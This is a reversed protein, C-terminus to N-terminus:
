AKAVEQEEKLYKTDQIRFFPYWLATNLVLIVLGFVIGGVGCQLFEGLIVPTGVPLFGAKPYTMLGAKMVLFALLADIQQIFMFPILTIPNLVLPFGFVLPENVNFLSPVIAIKALTKLRASKSFFLMCLALGLTAGVGGSITINLLGINVPYLM